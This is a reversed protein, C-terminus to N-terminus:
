DTERREFPEHPSGPRNTNELLFVCVRTRLYSCVFVSAGSPLTPAYEGREHTRAGLTLALTRADWAPTTHPTSLWADPVLPPPKARARGARRRATQPTSASRLPTPCCPGARWGRAHACSARTGPTGCRSLPHSVLRLRSPQLLASLVRLPLAALVLLALLKRPRRRRGTRMQWDQGRTGARQTVDPAETYRGRARRAQAPADARDAQV